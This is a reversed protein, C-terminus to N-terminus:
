QYIFGEFANLREAGIDQSEGDDGVATKLNLVFSEM